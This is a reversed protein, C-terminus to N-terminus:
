PQLTLSDFLEQVTLQFGPVVEVLDIAEARRLAVPAQNPRFVLVSEDSPDVLLAIAVGHAVYWLCRRVLANVSQEPSVIEIAIDPSILFDDVVRGSADIPIREWRYVAVDQVRSAGAFSTRLEPFALALKLPRAFQDIRLVLQAKLISHRGKPSVKQSIVGDAFELAPEKEPRKRFQELTRPNETIM